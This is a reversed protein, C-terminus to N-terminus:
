GLVRPTEVGSAPEDDIARRSRTRAWNRTSM